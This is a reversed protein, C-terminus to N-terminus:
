RGAKNPPLEPLPHPDTFSERFIWAKLVLRLEAKEAWNMRGISEDLALSGAWM